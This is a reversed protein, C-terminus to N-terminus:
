EVIPSVTITGDEKFKVQVQKNLKGKKLEKELYPNHSLPLLVRKGKKLTALNLWLAFSNESPQLEM